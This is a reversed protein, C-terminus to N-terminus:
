CGHCRVFKCRSIKRLRVADYTKEIILKNILQNESHVSRCNTGLFKQFLNHPNKPLLNM